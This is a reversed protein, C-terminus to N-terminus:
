ARPGGLVSLAFAVTRAEVEDRDYDLTAVHYSRDLRVREVPGAVKAEVLDGNSVPVVHDERSSFLLVPCSIDGLGAAVERTGEFLSLASELPSADYSLEEAGPLAIDAGIGPAVVEGADVLQHVADLLEPAPPEVMPNVLVIGCIEPHREALWAALTGGMSLGVVMVRDCRAALDLYTSETAQSWDSWRTPVMDEISTGHGPLLPLEVSLGAVALQEAIARMSFPNGTFGHLVLAGEASATVSM